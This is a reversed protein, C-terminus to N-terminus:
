AAQAKPRRIRKVTAFAGTTTEGQANSWFSLGRITGVPARIWSEVSRQDAPFAARLTTRHATVRRRNTASDGVIVWAGVQRANWSRDRSIDVAHRQKVDVRGMLDNVDVIETKLEIVLLTRTPPHWALIDIVGREGFVAFSVEPALEWDPQTLLWKAVSEHLASHRANLLRDLEGGRWSATIKLSVDLAQAVSVLAEVGLEGAHGRELRSVAARTVNARDAVDQQRWRKKIRVARVIAGLRVFDVVPAHVVGRIV